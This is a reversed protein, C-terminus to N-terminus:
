INVAQQLDRGRVGMSITEDVNKPLVWYLTVFTVLSLITLFIFLFDRTFLRLDKALISGTIQVRSVSAM